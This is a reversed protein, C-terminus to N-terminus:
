CMTAPGPLLVTLQRRRTTSLESVCLGQSQRRSCGTDQQPAAPQCQRFHRQFASPVGSRGHRNRAPPATGHVPPFPASLLLPLSPASHTHPPHQTLRQPSSATLPIPRYQLTRHGPAPCPHVPAPSTGPNTDPGRVPSPQGVPRVSHASHNLPPALTHPAPHVSGTPPPAVVRCGGGPGDDADMGRRQGKGGPDELTAEMERPEAGMGVM